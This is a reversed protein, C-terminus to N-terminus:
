QRETGFTKKIEEVVAMDENSIEYPFGCTDFGEVFVGEHGAHCGMLPLTGQKLGEYCTVCLKTSVCDRCVWFSRRPWGGNYRGQAPPFAGNPVTYQAPIQLPLCHTQASNPSCSRGDCAMSVYSPLYQDDCRNLTISNINQGDWFAHEEGKKITDVKDHLLDDLPPDNEGASARKYGEYSEWRDQQHLRVKSWAWAAHNQNLATLISALYFWGISSLPRNNRQSIMTFAYTASENLISVAGASNGRAAYIRALCLRVRFRLKLTLADQSFDAAELLSNVKAVISDVSSSEVDALVKRIYASCLHTIVPLMIEVEAVAPSQLFGEILTEWVCIAEALKSQASCLFNLRGLWFGLRLKAIHAQQESLAGTAGCLAMSNRYLDILTFLRTGDSDNIITRSLAVHMVTHSSQHVFTELLCRKDSVYFSQFFGFGGDNGKVRVAIELTDSLMKHSLIGPRLTNFEVAKERIWWNKSLDPWHGMWELMSDIARVISGQAPNQELMLELSQHVSSYAEKMQNKMSRAEALWVAARWNTEAYQDLLYIPTSSRDGFACLVAATQIDLDTQDPDEFNAIAWARIKRWNSPTFWGQIRTEDFGREEGDGYKLELEPLTSFWHFMHKIAKYTWFSKSQLWRRAIMRSMIIKLDNASHVEQTILNSASGYTILRSRETMSPHNLLRFLAEFYRNDEGWTATTQEQSEFPLLKDLMDEALFLKSLSLGVNFKENDDLRDFKLRCLIKPLLERALAPVANASKYGRDGYALGEVLLAVMNAMARDCDIVFQSLNSLRQRTEFFDNDFGQAKLAEQTFTATLFQQIAELQGNRGSRHLAQAHTVESDQSDVLLYEAIENTALSLHNRDNLTLLSFYTSEIDSKQLPFETRLVQEVASLHPMAVGLRHLVALLHLIRKLQLLQDNSILEVLSSLNRQIADQRKKNATRLAREVEDQSRARRLDGICSLLVYYDGSVMQVLRESVSTKYHLLADSETRKSFLACDALYASAVLMFDKSNPYTHDLSVKAVSYLTRETVTGLCFDNGTLLFRLAQCGADSEALVDCLEAFRREDMLDLGDLVIYSRFHAINPIVDLVLQKWLAKSSLTDQSTQQIIPFTIDCFRDDQACLQYVIARVVDGATLQRSTQDFLYFAVTARAGSQTAHKGLHDIAATALYTKGTNSAAEIALIRSDAASSSIWAMLLEHQMLWEGTGSIRRDACDRFRTKWTESDIHLLKQLQEIKSPGVMDRMTHLQDTITEVGGRVATVDTQIKLVTALVLASSLRHEEEVLSRLKDLHQGVGKDDNSGMTNFFQETVLAAHKIRDTFSGAKRESENTINVFLAVCDITHAIIVNLFQVFKRHLQAGAQQAQILMEFRMSFFGVQEFLESAKAFIERYDKTTIILLEIAKTMLTVGSGIFPISTAMPMFFDAFKWIVKFVTVFVKKANKFVKKVYAKSFHSRHEEIDAKDEEADEINLIRNVEESMRTDFSSDDIIKGTKDYFRKKADAWMRELDVESKQALNDRSTKWESELQKRSRSAQMM